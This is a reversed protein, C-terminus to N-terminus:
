DQLQMHSKVVGNEIKACPNRNALERGILRGLEAAFAKWAALASAAQESQTHPSKPDDLSPM